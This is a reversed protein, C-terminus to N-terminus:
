SRTTHWRQERSPSPGISALGAPAVSPPNPGAPPPRRREGPQGSPRTLIRPERWMTTVTPGGQPLTFEGIREFGVSGTAPWTTRTPRSWTPRRARPTSWAGPEGGAAGDGPGPWPAGPPHGAPEPLLPGPRPPPGGRLTSSRRHGASRRAGVMAELMPELRGAQPEPLEPRGPPIWVASAEFGPTAWVWGYGVSGEVLLQWLATLQAHRREPDSFVWGWVPDHGFAGPWPRPRRGIDREGVVVCRWGQMMACGRRARRGGRHREAVEDPGPMRRRVSPSSLLDVAGGAGSTVM